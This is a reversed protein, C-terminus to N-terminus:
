DNPYAKPMHLIDTIDAKVKLKVNRTQLNPLCQTEMSIDSPWKL